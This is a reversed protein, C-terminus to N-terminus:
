ESLCRADNADEAQSYVHELREHFTEFRQHCSSMNRTPGHLSGSEAPSASGPLVFSMSHNPEPDGDSEARREARDLKGISDARVETVRHKIGDREYERTRVAGQVMVYSGKTLTRTYEALKGFTVVRHWDTRSQWNGDADKWSEKTAVSLTVVLTGNPTYHAEADNGTFGIITLQNLTYMRTRRKQHGRNRPCGFLLRGREWVFGSVPGFKQCWQRITEYSVIIGREALLDEVRSRKKKKKKKKSIIQPPLRHGSYRASRKEYCWSKLEASNVIGISATVAADRTEGLWEREDM